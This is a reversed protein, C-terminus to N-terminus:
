AAAPAPPAGAASAPFLCERDNALVGADGHRLEAVLEADGLLVVEIAHHRVQLLVPRNALVSLAEVGGSPGCEREDRGAANPEIPPVAASPRARSLYGAPRPGM